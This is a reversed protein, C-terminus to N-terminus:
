RKREDPDYEEFHDETEIDEIPQDKGGTREAERIKPDTMNM